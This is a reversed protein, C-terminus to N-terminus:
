IPWFIVMRALRRDALTDGVLERVNMKLNQLLLFLRRGPFIHRPTIARMPPNKM